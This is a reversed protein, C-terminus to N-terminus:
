ASQAISIVVGQTDIPLVWSKAEVRVSKFALVIDEAIAEHRSEALAIVAPGAGAAVLKLAGRREAIEKVHAFGTIRAAAGAALMGGDLVSALLQVDGTRLADVLLPLRSLNLLTLDRDLQQPVMPPQFGEIKPVVVIVELPSVPLRRYILSEDELVGVALGGMLTAAAADPRAITAALELADDRDYLNDMLNNAGLVGAVTMAAEAGLGSGMPIDNQVRIDIGLHTREIHQFFRSMAITVPHRLAAADSLVGEGRQEVHLKDDRRGSIEVTTHLALALGLSNLGPGFDTLTAPLRIKIKRM